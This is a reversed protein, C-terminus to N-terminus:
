SKSKRIHFLPPLCYSAFCIFDVSMPMMSMDPCFNKETSNGPLSIGPKVKATDCSGLNDWM